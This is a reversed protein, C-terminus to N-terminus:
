ERKKKGNSPLINPATSAGGMLLSEIEQSSIRGRGFSSRINGGQVTIVHHPKTIVPQSPPSPPSTPSPTRAKSIDPLVHNSTATAVASKRHTWGEKGLFKISPVRFQQSSSDVTPENKLLELGLKSDIGNTGTRSTDSDIEYLKEGV